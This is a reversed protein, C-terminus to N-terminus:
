DYWSTHYVEDSDDSAMEAISCGYQNQCYDEADEQQGFYAEGNGFCWGVVIPLHTKSDLRFRHEAWEWFDNETDTSLWRAHLDQFMDSVPMVSCSRGEIQQIAMEDSMLLSVYEEKGNQYRYIGLDGTNEGESKLWVPCEPNELTFAILDANCNPWNAWQPDFVIAGACDGHEDMWDALKKLLVDSNKGLSLFDNFADSSMTKRETFLLRM